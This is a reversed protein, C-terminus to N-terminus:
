GGRRLAYFYTARGRASTERKELLVYASGLAGEIEHRDVGPPGWSGRGFAWLMFMGGPELVEDLFEVYARRESTTGLSHYCGVDTVLAFKGLGVGAGPATVDVRRFTCDVRESQARRAAKRLAVSSIDVGFAEFGKRALYVVLSGTGCGVDLAKCPAIRGGEVYEVLEEPPGEMEWPTFGTMYAWDWWTMRLLTM